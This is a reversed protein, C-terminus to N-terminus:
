QPRQRCWQWQLIEAGSQLTEIIEILPVVEYNGQSIFELHSEFQEVTVNTSPFRSEGFRHYMIVTAYDNKEAAEVRNFSAPILIFCSFYFLLFIFLLRNHSMLYIKELIKQIIGYNPSMFVCRQKNTSLLLM